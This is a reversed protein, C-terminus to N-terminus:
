IGGLVHESDYPLEMLVAENTWWVRLSPLTGARFSPGETLWQCMGLFVLPPLTTHTFDVVLALNSLHHRPSHPLFFALSVGSAMKSFGSASTLFCWPGAPSQAHKRCQPSGWQPICSFWSASFCASDMSPYCWTVSVWLGWRDFM